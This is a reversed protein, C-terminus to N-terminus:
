QLAISLFVRQAPRAAAGDLKAGEPAASSLSDVYPM